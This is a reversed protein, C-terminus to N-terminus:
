HGQVGRKYDITHLVALIRVGCMQGRKGTGARKVEWEQEEGNGRQEIEIGPHRERAYKQGWLGSAAAPNDTTSVLSDPRPSPPNPFPTATACFTTQVAVWARGSRCQHRAVAHYRSQSGTPHINVPPRPPTSTRRCYSSSAMCTKAGAGYPRVKEGGGGAMVEVCCPGSAREGGGSLVDVHTWIDTCVTLCKAAEDKEAERVLGASPSLDAGVIIPAPYFVKDRSQFPPSAYIDKHPM